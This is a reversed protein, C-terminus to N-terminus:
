KANGSANDQEVRQQALHDDDGFERHRESKDGCSEESATREALAGKTEQAPEGVAGLGSQGGAIGGPM